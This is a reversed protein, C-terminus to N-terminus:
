EFPQLDHVRGCWYIQILGVFVECLLKGWVEVYVLVWRPEPQGPPQLEHEPLSTLGLASLSQPPMNYSM